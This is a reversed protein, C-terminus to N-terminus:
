LSSLVFSIKDEYKTLFTRSYGSPVSHENILYLSRKEANTGSMARSKQELSLEVEGMGPTTGRSHTGSM